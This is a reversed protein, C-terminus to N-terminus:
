VIFNFYHRSLKGIGYVLLKILDTSLDESSAIDKFFDAIIKNGPLNEEALETKRVGLYNNYLYHLAKSCEIMELLNKFQSAEIGTLEKAARDGAGMETQELLEKSIILIKMLDTSLNEDSAIERFFYVANSKDPSCNFKIMEYIMDRYCFLHNMSESYYASLYLREAKSDEEATLLVSQSNIVKM